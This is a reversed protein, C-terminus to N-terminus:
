KRAILQRYISTEFSLALGAKLEHQTKLSVKIGPRSGPKKGFEPWKAAKM